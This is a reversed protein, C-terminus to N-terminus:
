ERKDEEAEDELSFANSVGVNRDKDIKVMGVEGDGKTLSQAEEDDDDAAEGSYAYRQSSQSPAWLYCIVVLLVLALVDWFATIIWASQWRESFPDTAKFYVKFIFDHYYVLNNLSYPEL